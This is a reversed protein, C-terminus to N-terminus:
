HRFTGTFTAGIFCIYTAPIAPIAPFPYSVLCVWNDDSWSYEELGSQFYYTWANLIEKPANDVVRGRALFWMWVTLAHRTLEGTCLAFVIYKSVYKSRKPNVEKITQLVHEYISHVQAVDLLADFVHNTM